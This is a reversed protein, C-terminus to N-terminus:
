LILICFCFSIYVIGSGSGMSAVGSDTSEDLADGSDPTNAASTNTSSGDSPLSFEGAFFYQPMYVEQHASVKFHILVAM